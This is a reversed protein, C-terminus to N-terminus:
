RVIPMQLETINRDWDDEHFERYLERSRGNIDFGSDEIWQVLAEYDVVVDDMSGEHIVSAVEIVPLDRVTVDDTSEVTQDGIDFGIHATVPGDDDTQEYWAVMMSPQVGATALHSLVRPVVAQFTENLAPGFGPATGTGEAVRLPETMKVVVDVSGMSASGELLRLRAEIRRLRAQEDAVTSEIQARRLMFMGRLQETTPKGDLVVAIQDLGFGLDRLALIQHLRGLQAVEYSRYGTQVDVHAPVLLGLDDYHRLTRTSVQGLQAFAGITLM